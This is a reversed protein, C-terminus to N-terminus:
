EKKFAHLRVKLRWLCGLGNGTVRSQRGIRLGKRMTLDGRSLTLSQGKGKKVVIRPLKCSSVSTGGKRAGGM